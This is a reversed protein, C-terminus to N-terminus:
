WNLTLGTTTHAIIALLILHQNKVPEPGGPARPEGRNIQGAM